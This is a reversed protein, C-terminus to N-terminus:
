TQLSGARLASSSSPTPRCNPARVAREPMYILIAAPSRRATRPEFPAPLVVSNLVIVPSKLGVLPVMRKKPSSMVVSAAM